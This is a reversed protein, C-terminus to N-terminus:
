KPGIHNYSDKITTLHASFNQLPPLQKTANCPKGLSVSCNDQTVSNETGVSSGNHIRKLMGSCLERLAITSGGTDANTNADADM